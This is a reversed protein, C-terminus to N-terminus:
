KKIGLWTKVITKQMENIENFRPKEPLKSNKLAEDIQHELGDALDLVEKISCEGNKIWLINEKHKLPFEIRGTELLEIGELLLRILHSAFKTDYGYKTILEKRNGVRDLREQITKQTKKLEWHAQCNLDGITVTAGKFSLFPLDKEKFEVLFKKRSSDDKEFLELFFENAINLEHFKDTKIIMKHKQAKAYGKFKHYLGKYLFIHKQSLIIEGHEKIDIINEKNTFLIEIINPNNDMALKMFKFISYLKLDVADKTNKGNEDKSKTGLDVEDVHKMGIIHDEDPVFIGVFDEDSTETNTGYLHSGVKTVLITRSTAIDRIDM